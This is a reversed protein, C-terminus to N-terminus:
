EEKKEKALGPARAQLVLDITERLKERLKAGIARTQDSKCLM